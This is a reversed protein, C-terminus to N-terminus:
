KEFAKEWEPLKYTARREGSRQIVIITFEKDRSTIRATGDKDYLDFAVAFVGQFWRYTQGETTATHVMYNSVANANWFVYGGSGSANGSSSTDVTTYTFDHRTFMNEGAGETATLTGPQQLPQYIRNGVQLVVRIDELDRPDAHRSLSNDLNGFSPMLTIVGWFTVVKPLQVDPKKLWDKSKAIEDDSWYEKRAKYGQAYVSAKPNLFWLWSVTKRDGWGSAVVSGIGRRCLKLAEDLNKIRKADENGRQWIKVLREPSTVFAPHVDGHTQLMAAAALAVVFM